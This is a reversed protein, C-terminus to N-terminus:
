IDINDIIGRLAYDALLGLGVGIGTKVGKHIRQKKLRDGGVSTRYRQGSTFSRRGYEPNLEIVTNKDLLVSSGKVAKQAQRILDSNGSKHANDWFDRVNVEKGGIRATANQPITERIMDPTITNKGNVFAEVNKKNAFLRNNLLSDAAPVGTFPLDPRMVGGQMLGYATAGGATPLVAFKAARGIRAGARDDDPTEKIFQALRMRDRLSGDYDSAQISNLAVQSGVAGLAAGGLIYASKLKGSPNRHIARSMLYGLGSGGAAGALAWGLEGASIQKLAKSKRSASKLLNRIGM